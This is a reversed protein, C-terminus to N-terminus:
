DAKGTAAVPRRLRALRVGQVVILAILGAAVVGLAIPAWLPVTPGVNATAPASPAPTATSTSGPQPGAATFAAPAADSIDFNAAGGGTLAFAATATYEGAPVDQWYFSSAFVRDDADREATFTQVVQGDADRLEVTMTGEPTGPATYQDLLNQVDDGTFRTSVIANRPNSPDPVVRVELALAAPRVVLTVPSPAPYEVSGVDVLALTIEYEGVDLVPAGSQASIFVPVTQMDLQYAGSDPTYGSPGGSFGVRATWPSAVSDATHGTASFQWYAGYPVTQTTAGDWTLGPDIAQASVAGGLAIAASLALTTAGLGILRSGRM